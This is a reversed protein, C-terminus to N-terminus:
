RVALLRGEQAILAALAERRTCMTFEVWDGPAMQAALPLDATIVTAIQPYGGTTQRDAMLLIPDGAPPVQLGGMFAADSIMERDSPREITVGTLRYAMRNSKPTVTFRSRELAHWAATEFFDDQPGALVRLRAGGAWQAMAEAVAVPTAEALATLGLRDGAALPRGDLGGMGSPVHTARSGLVSRVDIGGAVGVYARAGQRRAGFRLVSGPRGHIPVNLKVEQRDLTASLDAGAVALTIEREIRLEPGLVTVEITAADPRNGVVINALRHSVPDMPGAVPVGRDQQGWRGLDQITTLLGPRIVTIAPSSPQTHRVPQRWVDPGTDALTPVPVFRVEDGAAFLFPPTRTEDFLRTRTRGIIQWGGPTDQPYIATQRGAIGVSGAPVNARPTAHRPAAISEDVPGMYTFGPVFGLMFVRYTMSSHRRVVEEESASAYRAVAPLDPGNEGGYAVPVETLKSREVPAPQKSADELSATVSELMTHLPDFFVAVSRYTPVIDRVGPLAARRVNNAIAIARANVEADIRPALELLLASDGAERLRRPPTERDANV